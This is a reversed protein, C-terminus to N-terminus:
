MSFRLTESRRLREDVGQRDADYAEADLRKRWYPLVLAPMGDLVEVGQTNRTLNQITVVFCRGLPHM